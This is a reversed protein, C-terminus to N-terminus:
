GAKRDYALKFLEEILPAKTQIDKPALRIRYQGSRNNYELTDIDAEDIKATVDDTLPLRISATIFNKKPRLSVFNFPEGDLSLGIYHKNFKLELKPDCKRAIQLLSDALGVTSESAKTIWYARDAQAALEEDEDVLGRQMEDMVKTFVLTIQDGIKLATMQIAILPITGNFLAMVNLFRSTIDEAVLVACHDYQPYRKREIDWYELTRIIHTEDTAGLQLEVEYRRFTEPDELLLDLRGARPQPREKDRLDLEGLGLISPNTAILNQVWRENYEPHAKLNLKEHAVYPLAM